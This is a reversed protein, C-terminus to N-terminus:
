DGQEIRESISYIRSVFKNGSSLAMRTSVFALFYFTEIHINKKEFASATFHKGTKSASSSICRRSAVRTAPFVVKNAATKLSFM